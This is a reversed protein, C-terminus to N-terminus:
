VSYATALKARIKEASDAADPCRRGAPGSRLKKRGEKKINCFSPTTETTDRRVGSAISFLLYFDIKALSHPLFVRSGIIIAIARLIRQAGTAYKEKEEEREREARM